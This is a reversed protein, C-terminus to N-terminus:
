KRVVLCSIELNYLSILRLWGTKSSNWARNLVSERKSIGEGEIIVSFTCTNVNNHNDTATYTVHHVGLSFMGTSRSPSLTFLVTNDTVTPITWTIVDNPMGTINMPCTQFVPPEMDPLSVLNIPASSADNAQGKLTAQTVEIMQSTDDIHFSSGFKGLVTVNFSCTVNTGMGDSATYTVQNSGVAFTSGPQVSPTLTVSAM